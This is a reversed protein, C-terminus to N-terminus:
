IIIGFYLIYPKHNSNPASNNCIDTTFTPIFKVKSPNIGGQILHKKMILSPCIFTDVSEFWKNYQITKMQLVRFISALLSDKVCRYKLAYWKTKLCDTCVNKEKRYFLHSACFLHFDSLRYLVKVEYENKAIKMINPLMSDALFISYVVDPKEKDMLARFKNNVDNNRFMRLIARFKTFLTMSIQSLLYEGNGTIPEPFFKRYPTDITNDYNFSFPVVTHGKKELANKINFFYRDPGGYIFYHYNVIVIKM